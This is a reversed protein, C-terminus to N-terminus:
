MDSLLEYVDGFGPPAEENFVKMDPVSIIRKSHNKFEAFISEVSGRCMDDFRELFGM